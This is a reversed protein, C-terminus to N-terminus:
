QCDAPRNSDTNSHVSVPRLAPNPIWQFRWASAGDLHLGLGQTWPRDVRTSPELYVFPDKDPYRYGKTYLFRAVEDRDGAKGLASQAWQDLPREGLLILAARQAEKGGELRDLLQETQDTYNLELFRRNEWLSQGRADRKSFSWSKVQDWAWNRAAQSLAAVPQPAGPKPAGPQPAGPQAMGGQAAMLCLAWAFGRSRISGQRM